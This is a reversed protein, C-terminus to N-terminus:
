YLPVSNHEVGKIACFPLAGSRHIDINFFRLIFIEKGGIFDEVLILVVAAFGQPLSASITYGPITFVLASVKYGIHRM